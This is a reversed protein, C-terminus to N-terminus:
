TTSTPDIAVQQSISEWIGLLPDDFAAWPSDLPGGQQRKVILAPDGPVMRVPCSFYARAVGDGRAYGCVFVIDDSKRTAASM